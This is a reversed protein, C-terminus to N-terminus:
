EECYETIDVWKGTDLDLVLPVIDDLEICLQEIWEELSEHDGGEGIEDVYYLYSGPDDDPDTAPNHNILRAEVSGDSYHRTELYKIEPM